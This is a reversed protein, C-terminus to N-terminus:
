WQYPLVKFARNFFGGLGLPPSLFVVSLNISLFDRLGLPLNLLFVSLDHIQFSEM